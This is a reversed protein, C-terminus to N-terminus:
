TRKDKFLVEIRVLKYINLDEELTEIRIFERGRESLPFFENVRRLYHISLHVFGFFRRSGSRVRIINYM